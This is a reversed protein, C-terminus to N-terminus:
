MKLLNKNLMNAIFSIHEYRDSAFPRKFVDPGPTSPLGVSSSDGSTLLAGSLIQSVIETAPKEVHQELEEVKEDTACIPEDASINEKEMSQGSETCKTTDTAAEVSTETSTGSPPPGAIKIASGPMSGERVSSKTSDSSSLQGKAKKFFFFFTM